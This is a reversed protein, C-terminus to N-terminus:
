PVPLRGGTTPQDDATLPAGLVTADRELGAARSAVTDLDGGLQDMRAQFQFDIILLGIVYAALNVGFIVAFLAPYPVWAGFYLAVRKVGPDFGSRDCVTTLLLVAAVALLAHAPPVLGAVAFALFILTESARDLVTDLRHGLDSALGYERAMTGDLGDLLQGVAMLVLGGPVRRDAIAVAAAASVWFSAWTVQTPSLGFRERLLRALPRALWDALRKM